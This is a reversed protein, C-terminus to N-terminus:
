RPTLRIVLYERESKSQYRGLRPQAAVIRQWAAEREAGHLRTPAVPVPVSGPLEITVEDPRGMLNAYWDPHRGDGGSAVVLRADGDGFWAM